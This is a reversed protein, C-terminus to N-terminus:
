RAPPRPGARSTGASALHLAQSTDYGSSPSSQLTFNQSAAGSCKNQTLLTYSTSGATDVCLGNAANVITVVTGTSGTSGTHTKAARLQAPASSIIALASIIVSLSYLFQQIPSAKLPYVKRSVLNM